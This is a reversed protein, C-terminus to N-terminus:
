AGAGRWRQMRREAWALVPDFALGIAAIVKMKALVLDMQMMQRGWILEYGLGESSALLEVAALAHWSNTLGYRLGTVISPVAAALVIRHLLQGTGFRFVAAV